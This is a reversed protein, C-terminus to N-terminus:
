TEIEHRLPLQHTQTQVYYMKEGDTMHSFRCVSDSFM